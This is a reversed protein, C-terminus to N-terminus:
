LCNNLIVKLVFKSVLKHRIYRVLNTSEVLLTITMTNKNILFFNNRPLSKIKIFFESLLYCDVKANVKNM